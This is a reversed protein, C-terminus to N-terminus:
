KMLKKEVLKLKLEKKILEQCDSVASWINSASEHIYKNDNGFDEMNDVLNQSNFTLAVLTEVLPESFYMRNERFCLYTGNVEKAFDKSSYNGNLLLDTAPDKIVEELAILCKYMEKYARLKEDYIKFVYDYKMKRLEFIHSIVLGLATSVFAIIAGLIVEGQM